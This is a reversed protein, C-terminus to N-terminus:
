HRGSAAATRIGEKDEELVTTVRGRTFQVVCNRGLRKATYLAQDARSVLDEETNDSETVATVGASITVKLELSKAGPRHASLFTLNRVAERVREAVECAEDETTEPLIIGFEEGGYRVAVDVGRVHRILVHGLWRLVEDGMQHGYIDNIRKFHDIDLLVLSAPKGYRRFRSVEESLIRQMERRNRLGTLGDHTALEQLIVEARKRETIDTFMGFIGFVEGADDIVPTKIVEVHRQEGGAMNLEEITEPKRTSLIRLDDESYKDAMERPHLDYDSKGVLDQPLCDHDRAFAENVSVFRLNRDKFFVRQPLSSLLTRSREESERLAIEARKRAALDRTLAHYLLAFFIFAFATLISFTIIAGTVSSSLRATRQQLLTHEESEMGRVIDRISQMQASGKGTSSLRQAAEFGQSRRLAIATDLTQVKADIKERLDAISRQRDTDDLALQQVRDLSTHLQDLSDHYIQLSSENGTIVYGRVSSEATQIALLTADLEEIVSHTNEVWQNGDFSALANSYSIVGTGVLAVLAVAFGVFIKARIALKLRILNMVGFRDWM